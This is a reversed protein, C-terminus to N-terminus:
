HMTLGLGLRWLDARLDDASWARMTSFDAFPTLSLRPTMRFDCGLGGLFGAGTQAYSTGREDSLRIMGVGLGGSIFFGATPTPYFRARLDLSGVTLRLRSGEYEGTSGEKTWGAIGAGLLFRPSLAWGAAVDVTPAGASNVSGYGLGLNLWPGQRIQFPLPAQVPASARGAPVLQGTSDYVLNPTGQASVAAPVEILLLLLIGNRWIM